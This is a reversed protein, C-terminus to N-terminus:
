FTKIKTSGVGGKGPFHGFWLLVFNWLINPNQNFCGGGEKGHVLDLSDAMVMVCGREDAHEQEQSDLM